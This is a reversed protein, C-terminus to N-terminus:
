RVEGNYIKLAVADWSGNVVQLFKGENEPNSALSLMFNVVSTNTNVKESIESVWENMSELQENVEATIEEVMAIWTDESRLLLFNYNAWISVFGEDAFSNMVMSINPIDMITCKVVIPKGTELAASLVANEEETFLTGMEIPTTLVIEPLLEPQENQIMTMRFSDVNSGTSFNDATFYAVANAYQIVGQYPTKNTIAIWGDTYIWHYGSHIVDFVIQNGSDYAELIEAVTKDSKYTSENERTVHVICFPAGKWNAIAARADADKVKYGNLSSFYKDETPKYSPDLIDPEGWYYTM